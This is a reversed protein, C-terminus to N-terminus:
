KGSITEPSLETARLAIYGGMSIGCLIVKKLKLYEILHLLDRAFLDISLYGHGATSKGLGRIDYAIGQIDDPLASMQEDWIHKNFPFGHIFVVAAKPNLPTTLTVSNKINGARIPITKM